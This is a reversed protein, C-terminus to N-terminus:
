DGVHYKNAYIDNKSTYDEPFPLFNMISIFNVKINKGLKNKIVFYLPQM